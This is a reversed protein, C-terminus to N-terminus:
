RNGLHWCLLGSSYPYISWTFENHVIAYDCCLLACCFRTCIEQSISYEKNKMCTTKVRKTVSSIRDQNWRSYFSCLWRDVYVLIIRFIAATTRRSRKNCTMTAIWILLYHCWYTFTFEICSFLKLVDNMDVFSNKVALNDNYCRWRSCLVVYVDSLCPSAYIRCYFAVMMPESLLKVSPRRRAIIQVQTPINNMKLFLSWDLRLCIRVNANVFIVQYNQKQSIIDSKAEFEQISWQSVQSCEMSYLVCIFLWTWAVCYSSIM